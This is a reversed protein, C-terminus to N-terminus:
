SLLFKVIQQASYQPRELLCCHGADEVIVPGVVTGDSSGNPHAAKIDQVMSRQGALPMMVDHEGALVLVPCEIKCFDAESDPRGIVSETQNILGQVGVEEAMARMVDIADTNHRQHFLAPIARDIVATMGHQKAVEVLKWRTAKQEDTDASSQTTILALRSVRDAAQRIVEFALYGGMSVGLVDFPQNSPIQQLAMAVTQQLTPYHHVNPCHIRAHPLAHQIHSIVTQFLRPTCLLGPLLLLHRDAPM